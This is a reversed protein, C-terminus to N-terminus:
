VLDHQSEELLESIDSKISFLASTDSFAFLYRRRLAALIKWERYNFGSSLPYLSTNGTKWLIKDSM